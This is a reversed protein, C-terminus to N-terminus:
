RGGLELSIMKAMPGILVTSDENAASIYLDVKPFYRVTITADLTECNKAPTTVSHRRCMVPRHEYVSCSGESNLFVCPNDQNRMGQKWLPDQLERLSQRHLRNRDIPHGDLILQSLIQAEHNTIEVEMHCCASCGKFCSVQIEKESDIESDVLQHLTRARLTDPSVTQLEGSVRSLEADLNHLFSTFTEADMKEQFDHVFNKFSKTLRPHQTLFDNLSM